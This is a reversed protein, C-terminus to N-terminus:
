GAPVGPSDQPTAAAAARSRSRRWLWAGLGFSVVGAALVGLVNLAMDSAAALNGTFGYGLGIYLGM